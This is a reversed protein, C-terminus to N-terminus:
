QATAASSGNVLAEVDTIATVDADGYVNEITIRVRNSVPPAIMDVRFHAGVNPFEATYQKGVDPFSIMVERVRNTAAFTDEDRQDGNWVLLHDIQM